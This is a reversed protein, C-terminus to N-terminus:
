IPKILQYSFLSFDDKYLDNFTLRLESSWSVIKKARNKNKHNLQTDSDLCFTKCIESKINELGDEFKFIKIGKAIFHSQPRLHNDLIFKNNSFQSISNLGWQSFSPRKGFRKFQKETRFFYESLFRDYPNRVITFCYDFKIFPLLIKINDFTLHQPTVKLFNPVNTEYFYIDGTSKLWQFLSTGGTKPIHIFLLYKGNHDIIPM